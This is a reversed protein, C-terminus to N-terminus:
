AEDALGLGVVALVGAVAMLVYTTLMTGREVLLGSIGSVASRLTDIIQLLFAPDALWWIGAIVPLLALVAMTDFWAELGDTVDSTRSPLGQLVTATFHRPAQARAGVLSQNIQRAAALGAACRPCGDLHARLEGSLEIEGAALPEILEAVTDCNM